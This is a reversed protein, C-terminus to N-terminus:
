RGGSWIADEVVVPLRNDRAIRAATQAEPTDVAGGVTVGSYVIRNAMSRCVLLGWNTRAKKQFAEWSARLNKGMEPLPADGDVYRRRRTATDAQRDLNGALKDLWEDPTRVAM